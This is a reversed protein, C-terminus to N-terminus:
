SPSSSTARLGRLSAAIEPRVRPGDPGPLARAVLPGERRPTKADFAVVEATDEINVYVVGAADSVAFEPKGGVPLTGAVARSAADIATM